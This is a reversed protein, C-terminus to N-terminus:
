KHRDRRGPPDDAGCSRRYGLRVWCVGCAAWRIAVRPLNRGARVRDLDRLLAADQELRERTRAILRDVVAAPSFSPDALADAIERLGLGVSRLAEVHFLRRMDEESYSRYGSATRGAPSVLGIRDDHRLMREPDAMIRETALMSDAHHVKAHEHRTSAEAADWGSTM